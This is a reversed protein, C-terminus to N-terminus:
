SLSRTWSNALISDMCKYNTKMSAKGHGRQPKVDMLAAAYLYLVM